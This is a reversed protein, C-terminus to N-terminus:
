SKILEVIEVSAGQMLWRAAVHRHCFDKPSEYCLLVAGEPLEDVIEQPSKGRGVLLDLYLETYKERNIKGEKYERVIEWTPALPPYHNM